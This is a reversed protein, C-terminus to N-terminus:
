QAVARYFRYSMDKAAADLVGVVGTSAATVTELFSWNFLDTSVEIDYVTGPMGSLTLQIGSTTIQSADIQLQNPPLLELTVFGVTEGGHGDSYLVEFEDENATLNSPPTYTLTTTNTAIRGGEESISNVSALTIAYDDVDTVNTLLESIPITVTVGKTATIVVDNAMPPIDLMVVRSALVTNSGYDLAVQIVVFNTSADDTAFTVERLLATLAGSTVSNSGLAVVLSNSTQSLTAFAFGGYSVNTGQVSIQGANTGQSAVALVDGADANTLVTVTLLGNAYNVSNGDNIMGNSDLAMAPDGVVYFVPNTSLVLAAVV